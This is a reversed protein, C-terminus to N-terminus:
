QWSVPEAKMTVTYLGLQAQMDTVRRLTIVGSVATPALDNINIASLFQSSNPAKLLHQGPNSPNGPDLAHFGLQIQQATKSSSLNKVRFELDGSSGRPIDGWNAEQGSLPRDETAHWFDLRQEDIIVPDAYIHVRQIKTASNNNSKLRIGKASPGNCARIDNRMNGGTEISGLTIWTGDIGNTTDPSYEAAPLTNQWLEHRVYVGKIDRPQPFVCCFYWNGYIDSNELNPRTDSNLSEIVNQSFPVSSNLNKDLFLCATGDSDYPVREGLLAPFNAM